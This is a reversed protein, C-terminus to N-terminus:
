INRWGTGPIARLRLPAFSAAISASAAGNITDAGSPNVTVNNAGAFRSMTLIKGNRAPPLTLVVVGGTTDVWVFDHTTLVSGSVTFTVDKQLQQLRSV